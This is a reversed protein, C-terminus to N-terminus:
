PVYTAHEDVATLHVVERELYGPGLLEESVRATRQAMSGALPVDIRRHLRAQTRQPKKGRRAPAGGGRANPQRAGSSPYKAQREAPRGGCLPGTDGEGQPQFARYAPRWFHLTVPKSAALRLMGDPELAHLLTDSNGNIAFVVDGPRIKDGSFVAPGADGSRLQSYALLVLEDTHTSESDEEGQEHVQFMIGLDHFPVESGPEAAAAFTCQMEKPPEATSLISPVSALDDLGTSKGTPPTSIHAGSLLLRVVEDADANYLATDRMVAPKSREREHVLHYVINKARALM